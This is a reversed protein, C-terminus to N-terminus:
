TERTPESDELLAPEEPDSDRVYGGRWLVGSTEPTAAVEGPQTDEQQGAQEQRANEAFLLYLRCRFLICFALVCLFGFDTFGVAPGPRLGFFFRGFVPGLAQTMPAARGDAPTGRSWPRNGQGGRGPGFHCPGHVGM